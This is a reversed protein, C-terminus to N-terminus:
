AVSDQVNREEAEIEDFLGDWDLEHYNGSAEGADIAARLRELKDEHQELLRLAAQVVGSETGFREDHAYESILRAYHESFELTRQMTM